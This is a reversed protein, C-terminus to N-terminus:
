GNFVMSPVAINLILLTGVKVEIALLIENTCNPSEIWIVVVPAVSM